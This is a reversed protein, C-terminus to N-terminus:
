IYNKKTIVFVDCLVDGEFEFNFKNLWVECILFVWDFDIEVGNKFVEKKVANIELIDGAKFNQSIEIWNEKNIIKVKSLNTNEKFIFRFDFDSEGSRENVFEKYYNWSIDFLSLWDLSKGEIFDYYEFNLVLNFFYTNFHAFNLPSSTTRIRVKWYFDNINFQLIPDKSYLEKNLREIKEMFDAKNKWKVILNMSITWGRQYQSVFWVWHTLPNNYKSIESAPTRSFSTVRYNLNSLSLGNIMFDPTKQIKSNSALPSDQALIKFM